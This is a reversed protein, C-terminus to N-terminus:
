ELKERGAAMAARTGGRRRGRAAAGQRRRSSCGCGVARQRPRSSRAARPGGSASAHRAHGSGVTHQKGSGVDFCAALQQTAAGDGADRVAARRLFNARDGNLM